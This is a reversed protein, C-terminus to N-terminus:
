DILFFYGFWNIENSVLFDLTSTTSRSAYRIEGRTVNKDADFGKVSDYILIVKKLITNM